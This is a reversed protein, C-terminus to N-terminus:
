YNENLFSLKCLYNIQLSPFSFFSLGSMSKYTHIDSWKVIWLISFEFNIMYTTKYRERYRWRRYLENCINIVRPLQFIHSAKKWARRYRTSFTVFLLNTHVDLSLIFRFRCIAIHSGNGWFYRYLIQCIQTVQNQGRSLINVNICARCKPTELSLKCSYPRM